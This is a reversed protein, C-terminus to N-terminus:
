KKVTEKLDKIVPDEKLKELLRNRYYYYKSKVKNLSYKFPLDGFLREAIGKFSLEGIIKLRFIEVVTPDKFQYLLRQARQAIVQRIEKNIMAEEPSLVVEDPYLKTYTKYPDIIRKKASLFGKKFYKRELLGNLKRLTIRKLAIDGKLSYVKVLKALGEDNDPFMSLLIELFIIADNYKKHQIELDSRILLIRAVNLNLVKEPIKPGEM